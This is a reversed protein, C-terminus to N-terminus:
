RARTRAIWDAVLPFYHVLPNIDHHAVDPNQELYWIADFRSSPSLGLKAGEEIYHRLPNGGDTATIGMQSAYWHTDFFPNPNLGEHIGTRLYHVLPNKGLEGVQQYQTLYWAGDFLPHPRRGERGGIQMYHEISSLRSGAVEPYLKIYYESDFLGSQTILSIDDAYQKRHRDAELFRKPHLVFNTGRWIILLARLLHKRVIPRQELPRLAIRLLRYSRSASFSQIANLENRLRRENEQTQELRRRMAEEVSDLLLGLRKIDLNAHRKLIDAEQTSLGIIDKEGRM